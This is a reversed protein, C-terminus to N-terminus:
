GGLCTRCLFHAKASDVGAFVVHPVALTLKKHARVVLEAASGHVAKAIVCSCNGLRKCDEWEALDLDPTQPPSRLQLVALLVGRGRKRSILSGARGCLTDLLQM